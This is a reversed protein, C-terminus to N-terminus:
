SRIGHDSFFEDEDLMKELIRKLRDKSVLSLLIRDGQGRKAM